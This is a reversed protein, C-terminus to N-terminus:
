ARLEARAQPSLCCGCVKPRPMDSREVLLVRWGARALRIAVASGAPGAGVIVAQWPTAAAAAPSITAAFEHARIM